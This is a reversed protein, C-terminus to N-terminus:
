PSNSRAQLEQEFSKRAEPHQGLYADFRRRFRRQAAPHQALSTRFGNARDAPSGGAVTGGAVGYRKVSVNFFGGFSLSESPPGDSAEAVGDILRASPAGTAVIFVQRGSPFESPDAPHILPFRHDLYIALDQQLPDFAQSKPDHGLRYPQVVPTGPPAREAIADAAAHLDPRPYSTLMRLSGLLAALVLATVVLLATRDQLAAAAVGVILCSYPVVTIIDRAGYISTALLSYTLTLAAIGATMAVLLWGVRRVRLSLHGGSRFLEVAIIAIALCGVLLSLLGPVQRITTFPHGIVVRLSDTLFNHWTLPHIKEGIRARDAHDLVTPIWPVFALAVAANVVVVERWRDRHAILVWAAQAALAVGATYHSYIAAASALGYVVWWGIGEAKLGKLLGLTSLPILLLVLGYARAESGYFVAFPLVAFLAAATIGARRGAIADGILYLVPVAAAGAFVSPLRIATAPDGLKASTWALVYFIPPNAEFVKMRDFVDPLSSVTTDAYTFLEDGFLSQQASIWRLLLGIVSVIAVSALALTQDDDFRERLRAIVIL